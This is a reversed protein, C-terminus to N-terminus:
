GQVRGAGWEMCRLPSVAPRWLRVVPISSSMLSIGLDVQYGSHCRVGCAANFVNKCENRLFYGHAPPLLAPCDM